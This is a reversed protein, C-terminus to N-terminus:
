DTQNNVDPAVIEIRSPPKMSGDSSTHDVQKKVGYKKAAMREAVWKRTDVRLRSRNVAEGNQVWSEEKDKGERKMWDNSADDAIDLLEDAMAEAQFLRAKAYQESFPEDNVYHNPNAIWLFVSSLAPMAPDRCISRLSEGEVLRTCIDLALQENFKTPRGAKKPMDKIGCPNIKIAM